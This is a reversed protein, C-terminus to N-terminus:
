RDQEVTAKAMPLATLATHRQRAPQDFEPQLSHNCSICRQLGDLRAQGLARRIENMRDGAWLEMFPTEVVNGILYAAESAPRVDYMQVCMKLNGWVDVAAAFSPLFCPTHRIFPAAIKINGARSNFQEVKPVFIRFHTEGIQFTANHGRVNDHTEASVTPFCEALFAAAAAPGPLPNRDRENAYLSIRVSHVGLEVLRAFEGNRRYDGNTYVALRAEPIADQASEILSYIRPNALPENYNHFGFFGSYGNRSLDGLLANWVTDAIPTREHGRSSYGNPCWTCVRNCYTDTEVEIWGPQKSQDLM